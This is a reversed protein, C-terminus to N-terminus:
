AMSVFRQDVKGTESATFRHTKPSEWTSMATLANNPKMTSKSWQDGCTRLWQQNPGSLPVASSSSSAGQWGSTSGGGSQIQYVTALATINVQMQM